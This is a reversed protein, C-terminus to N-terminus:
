VGITSAPGGSRDRVTDTTEGARQMAWWALGVSVVGLVAHVVIFGLEYDRLAILVVQVSWLAITIAAAITVVRRQTQAAVPKVAVVAVALGIVVFLAARGLSWALDFGELDDGAINVLRQGWIFLTWIAFLAVALPKCRLM